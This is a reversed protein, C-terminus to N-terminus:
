LEEGIISKIQNFKKDTEPVNDKHNLVAWKIKKKLDKKNKIDELDFMLINKISNVEVYIKGEDRNIKIVKPM